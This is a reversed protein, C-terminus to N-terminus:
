LRRWSSTAYTYIWGQNQSDTTYYIWGAPNYSYLRPYLNSRTWTWGLDPHYLFLGTTANGTLYVYGLSEHLIWPANSPHFWGFWSLNRWSSWNTGTSGPLLLSAPHTQVTVVAINSDVFSAGSTVRVRYNGADSLAAQAKSFTPLNSGVNTSGRTWQYSLNAGTATVSLNLPDGVFVSTSQPHQSISPGSPDPNTATFGYLSGAGLRDDAQLTFVGGYNSNMVASVFQRPTAQDPHGLGFTHGFEHMLVRRLDNDPRMDGDYVDWRPSTNVVVDAEVRDSNVSYSLAVALTSGGFSDGYITNSFFVDNRGNREGNPQTAATTALQLRAMMPNWATAAQNVATLWPVGSRFTPVNQSHVHFTVTTNDPWLFFDDSVWAHLLPTALLALAVPLISAPLRVPTPTPM